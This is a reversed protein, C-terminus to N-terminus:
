DVGIDVLRENESEFRLVGGHPLPYRVSTHKVGNHIRSQFQIGGNRSLIDKLEPRKEPFDALRGRWKASAQLFDEETSYRDALGPNAQYLARAGEDTQLKQIDTRIDSWAQDFVAGGKKMGWWVAGGMTAVCGGVIIVFAIGCGLAVKAGTSLGKKPQPIGQNDWSSDSM